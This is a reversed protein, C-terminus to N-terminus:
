TPGSFLVAKVFFFVGESDRGGQLTIGDQGSNRAVDRCDDCCTGFDPSIM